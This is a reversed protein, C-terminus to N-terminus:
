SRWDLVLLRGDPFFKMPGISQFEGPGEGQRGISKVFTGDPSFVKISIDQSDFICINGESDITIRSPKYLIINGNADEENIALEEESTSSETLPKLKQLHLKKEALQLCCALCLQQRLTHHLGCLMVEMKYNELLIFSLGPLTFKIRGISLFDLNDSM